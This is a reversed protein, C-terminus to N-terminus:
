LVGAEGEDEVSWTEITVELLRTKANQEMIDNGYVLLKNYLKNM